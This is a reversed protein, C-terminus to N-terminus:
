AIHHFIDNFIMKAKSFCLMEVILAFLKSMLLWNIITLIGTGPEETCFRADIPCMWNQRQILQLLQHPFWWLLAQSSLKLVKLLPKLCPEGVCSGEFNGAYQCIHTNNKFSTKWESPLTRKTVQKCRILGSWWAGGVMLKVSSLTTPRLELSSGRGPPSPIMMAAMSKYDLREVTGYFRPENPGVHLLTMFFCQLVTHCARYWMFTMIGVMDVMNDLCNNTEEWHSGPEKHEPTRVRQVLWARRWALPAAAAARACGSGEPLRHQSRHGHQLHLHGPFLSAETSQILNSSLCTVWTCIIAPPMPQPCPLKFQMMIDLFKSMPIHCYLIRSHQDVFIGKFHQFSPTKM